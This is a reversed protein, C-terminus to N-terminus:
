QHKLDLDILKGAATFEAELKLDKYSFVVDYETGTQEEDKKASLIEAGPFYSQLSATVPAPLESAAIPTDAFLASAACFSIITAAALFKKMAQQM